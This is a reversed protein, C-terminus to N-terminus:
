RPADLASMRRKADWDIHRLLLFYFSMFVIWALVYSLMRAQFNLTLQNIVFPSEVSLLVFPFLLASKFRSLAYELQAIRQQEPTM